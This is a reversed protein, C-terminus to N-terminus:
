FAKHDLDAPTVDIDVDMSKIYELLHELGESITRVEDMPIKKLQTALLNQFPIPASQVMKRGAKSIEIIGTVTSPNIFVARSIEGFTLGNKRSLARLCLLQGASLQMEKELTKSYVSAIHSIYRLTLFITEMYEQTRDGKIKNGDMGTCGKKKM